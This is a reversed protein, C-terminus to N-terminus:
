HYFSMGFTAEKMEYMKDYVYDSPKEWQSHRTIKNYYFIGRGRKDKYPVWAHTTDLDGWVDKRKAARQAAAEKLKRREEEKRRREEEEANVREYVSEAPPGFLLDLAKKDRECNFDLLLHVIDDRNAECAIMLPSEKKYNEIDTSAGFDLLLETIEVHEERVAYHLATDGSM